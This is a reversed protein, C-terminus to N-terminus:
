EADKIFGLSEHRKILAKMKTKASVHYLLQDKKIDLWSPIIVALNKVLIGWKTTFSVPSFAEYGYVKAFGACIADCETIEKESLETQWASVRSTNIPKSLDDYKKKFYKKHEEAIDMKTVDVESLETEKMDEEKVSLFSFVKKMSAEYDSVLDEYRMLLVKQPHKQCFTWAIENFVLWRTANYTVKPSKLYANQKRSLVNARYDRVLLIFKSEPFNKELQDVSLTFAPNKDILMTANSKDKGSVKIESYISKCLAAYSMEKEEVLRIMKEKSKAMDLEWGVLPHSLAFIGIQQFMLEIHEKKFRTVNKYDSLFFLLFNAEPLAHIAPHSNLIKNLITTGSRGIGIIFHLQKNAPEVM